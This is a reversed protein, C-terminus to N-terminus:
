RSVEKKWQQKEIRRATRRQKIKKRTDKPCCGYECNGDEHYRKRLMASM